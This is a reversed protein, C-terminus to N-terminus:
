PRFPSQTLPSPVGPYNEMAPPSPSSGPVPRPRVRSTPQSGYNGASALSSVRRCSSSAIADADSRKGYPTGLSM